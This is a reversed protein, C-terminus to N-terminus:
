IRRLYIRIKSARKFCKCIAFKKFHLSQPWHRLYRWSLSDFQHLVPTEEPIHIYCFECILLQITDKQWEDSGDLLSPLGALHAVCLASPHGLVLPRISYRCCVTVSSCNSACPSNEICKETALPFFAGDCPVLVRGTKGSVCIVSNTRTVTNNKRHPIDFLRVSM